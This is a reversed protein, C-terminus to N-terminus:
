WISKGQLCSHDCWEFISISLSINWNWIYCFKILKIFVSLFSNLGDFFPLPYPLIQAVETEKELKSLREISISFIVATNKDMNVPLTKIKEISNYWAKEFKCKGHQLYRGTVWMFHIYFVFTHDFFFNLCKSFCMIWGRTIAWVTTLSKM